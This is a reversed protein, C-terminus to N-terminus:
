QGGAQHYTELQLVRRDLENFRSDQSGTMSSIREEMRALTVQMENVTTVLRMALAGIGVTFLGAIITAAWKRPTPIDAQPRTLEPRDALM